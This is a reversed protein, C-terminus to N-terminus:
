PHSPILITIIFMFRTWIILVNISYPVCEYIVKASRTKATNSIIYSRDFPFECCFFCVLHIFHVNIFCLVVCYWIWMFETMQCKPMKKKLSLRAYHADHKMQENSKWSCNVFVSNCKKDFSHYYLISAYVNPIM